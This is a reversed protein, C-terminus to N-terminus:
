LLVVDPEKLHLPALQRQAVGLIERRLSRRVFWLDSCRCGAHRRSLVAGRGIALRLNGLRCTRWPDGQCVLKQNWRDHRRELINLSSSVSAPCLASRTRQPRPSPARSWRQLRQRARHLGTRWQRRPHPDSRPSARRRRNPPRLRPRQILTSPDRGPSRLPQVCRRRIRRLGARWSVNSSKSATAM